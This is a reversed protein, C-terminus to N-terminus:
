IQLTILSVRNPEYELRILTETDTSREFVCFISWQSIRWVREAKGGYDALNVEEPELYLARVDKQSGRIVVTGEDEDLTNKLELSRHQTKTQGKLILRENVKITLEVSFKIDPVHLIFPHPQEQLNEKRLYAETKSQVENRIYDLDSIEVGNDAVTELKHLLDQFDQQLLDAEDDHIYRIIEKCVQSFIDSWQIDESLEDLDVGRVLESTTNWNRDELIFRAVRYLNSKQLRPEKIKSKWRKKSPYAQILRIALGVNGGRICAEFIVDQHQEEVSTDLNDKFCDQIEKYQELNKLWELNRPYAETKSRVINRIHDLDSIEVGNDAVTELKHLLDQFDQQLLDAEDDHMHRTIEECVLSFIDAWQIDGSLEDSLEDIDVDRVFESTANWDWSGSIFRAACYLNSKQLRPEKDGLLLISSYESSKGYCRFAEKYSDIDGISEYVKGAKYWEEEYEFKLAKAKAADAEKGAMDYRQQALEMYYPDKDEQGLRFYNKALEVPDDKQGENWSDETGEAIVGLHQEKWASNQYAYILKQFEPKFAFIMWFKEKAEQTDIIILHEQARSAAVYLGNVFYQLPLSEERYISSPEDLFCNLQQLHRLAYEGFKYLVVRKFQLGKARMPSQVDRSVIDQDKDHAFTKLFDDEQIYSKEQGEHCPVIVVREREERMHQRCSIQDYNFYAPPKGTNAVQWIDQWVDQPRLSPNDFALGRKLLILNCFQVIPPKSRYNLELDKYNFTLNARGTTDLQTVINHYFAAQTADWNFGTPNLTQLPDGAFAFPVKRLQRRPVERKTFLSLRFILEFEITTFDQAEDCFVAPFVGLNIQGKYELDLLYRVLDQDDWYQEDQCLKQYHKWAGTYVEEFAEVSVSKQKTPVNDQYYESNIYETDQDQRMGKIYSRIVHWAVEPSTRLHYRRFKTHYFNRFRAFDVYKKDNFKDVKNRPLWSLLFRRFPHFSRNLEEKAEPTKLYANGDLVQNSNYQLINRVVRQAEDSLSGSYTLYLPPKSLKSDILYPQLYEAFLYQLITSKGSGPRGNIFLPFSRDRADDLVSELIDNEEPSLALNAEGNKQIEMWLKHETICLVSYLRRGLQMLLTQASNENDDRDDFNLVKQYRTRLINEDEDPRTRIIPAIIFWIDLSQFYRYLVAISSDNSKIYKVKDKNKEHILEELLERYENYEDNSEMQEVREVWTSSELVTEGRARNGGRFNRYLLSREARKLRPLPIGAPEQRQKLYECITEKSPSWSQQYYKINNSNLANIFSQYDSGKMHLRLLCYVLDQGIKRREIILRGSYRINKKMVSQRWVVGFVYQNKEVQNAWRKVDELLRYHKADQECRKTLYTFIRM